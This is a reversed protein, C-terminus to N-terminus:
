GGQLYDFVSFIKSPALAMENLKTMLQPQYDTIVLGAKNQTNQLLQMHSTADDFAIKPVTTAWDEMLEHWAPVLYDM